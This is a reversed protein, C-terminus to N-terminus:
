LFSYKFVISEDQSVYIRGKPVFDFPAFEMKYKWLM